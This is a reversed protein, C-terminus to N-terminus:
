VIHVFISVAGIHRTIQCPLRVWVPFVGLFIEFVYKCSVARALKKVPSDNPMLVTLRGVLHDAGAPKRPKIPYTILGSNRPLPIAPSAARLTIRNPNSSNPSFRMSALYISPLTAERLTMSFIPMFYSPVIRPESFIPPSYRSTPTQAM